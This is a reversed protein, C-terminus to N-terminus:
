RPLRRVASAKGPVRQPDDVAVSWVFAASLWVAVSGAFMYGIQFVVLLM